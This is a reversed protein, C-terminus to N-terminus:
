VDLKALALYHVKVNEYTASSTTTKNDSSVGAVRSLMLTFGSQNASNGKIYYSLDVNSSSSELTVLIASPATSLQQPSFSVPIPVASGGVTIRQPATSGSIMRKAVTQNSLADVSTSLQFTNAELESIANVLQMLKTADLPAGPDFTLNLKSM